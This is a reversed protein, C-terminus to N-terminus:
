QREMWFYMNTTNSSGITIDVFKLGNIIGMELNGEYITGTINGFPTGNLTLNYASSTPYFTYSLKETNYKYTTYNSFYLTDSTPIIDGLEGIRYGTIVWTQGVLNTTSDVNIPNTVIPQPPLPEGSPTFEEKVCSTIAFGFFMYILFNKM